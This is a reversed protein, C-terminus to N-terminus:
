VRGTRTLAIASSEEGAVVVKNRGTRKSDYLARDARDLMGQISDSQRYETIGVSATIRYRPEIRTVHMDRLGDALRQACRIADTQSTGALVLVFEEGGIRAVCDVERVVDEAVRSFNKLVDDGTSHGFKDNM